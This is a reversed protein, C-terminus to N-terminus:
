MEFMQRISAAFSFNLHLSNPLLGTDMATQGTYMKSRWEASHTELTRNNIIIIITRISYLLAAFYTQLHLKCPVWFPLVSCVFTNCTHAASLSHWLACAACIARISCFNEDGDFLLESTQHAMIHAIHLTCPHVYLNYKQVRVLHLAFSIVPVLLQWLSWTQLTISWTFAHPISYAIYRICNQRNKWPRDYHLPLCDTRM